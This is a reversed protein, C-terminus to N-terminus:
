VANHVHIEEGVPVAAARRAEEYVEVVQSAISPWSYRQAKEYGAAALRRRLEPDRALIVLAAGLEAWSRPRVTLSDQGPDLVSM